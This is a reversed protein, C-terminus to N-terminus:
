DTGHRPQRAVLDMEVRMDAPLRRVEVCSRAPRHEGFHRAYVENVQQFDGMDTLYVTAKVVDSLTCGAAALVATLNQLTQEAQASVDDGVKENDPTLGVAGSTYVWGDVIVAQSYPGIAQSSQKTAVTQM